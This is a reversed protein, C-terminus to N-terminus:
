FKLGLMCLTSIVPVFKKAKKKGIPQTLRCPITNFHVATMKKGYPPNNTSHGEKMIDEGM